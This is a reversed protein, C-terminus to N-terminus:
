ASSSGLACGIRWGRRSSRVIPDSLLTEARKHAFLVVRRLAVCLPFFLTRWFVFFWARLPRPFTTPTERVGHAVQPRTRAPLATAQSGVVTDIQTETDSELLETRKRTEIQVQSLELSSAFTRPKELVSEVRGFGSLMEVLRLCWRVSATQMYKAAAREEFTASDETLKLLYKSEEM